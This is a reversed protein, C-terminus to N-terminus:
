IKTTTLFFSTSDSKSQRSGTKSDPSYKSANSPAASSRKSIAVFYHSLASNQLLTRLTSGPSPCPSPLPLPPDVFSSLNSVGKAVRVAHILAILAHTKGGGYQTGRRIISSVEGGKGPLRPRCVAKLLEKTGRTPHSKAFFAIPDLYDAPATHNVVRSPDAMFADDRISRAAVDVRPRCASFITPLSM